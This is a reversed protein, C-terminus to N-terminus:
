REESIKELARDEYLKNSVKELDGLRKEARQLERKQRETDQQQQAQKASVLMQAYNREAVATWRANCCIDELVLM